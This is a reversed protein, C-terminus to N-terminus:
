SIESANQDEHAMIWALLLFYNCGNALDSNKLMCM